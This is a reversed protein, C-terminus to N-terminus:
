GGRAFLSRIKSGMRAVNRMAAPPLSRMQRYWSSMTEFFSLMERIRKKEDATGGLELCDRLVALTPDVERKKREDLVTQFMRWVDQDSTFHDRRDGRIREVRIIGWGSLEKLCMSVNSRAIGLTEGIEDAPLASPSLYLLAHVQAVSRNVGWKPGMEGWHGVFAQAAPSLKM